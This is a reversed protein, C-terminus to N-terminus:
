WDESLFVQRFFLILLFLGCIEDASKFGIMDYFIVGFLLTFVFLQYFYKNTFDQLTM